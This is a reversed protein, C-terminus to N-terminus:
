KVDIPKSSCKVVINTILYTSDANQVSTLKIYGMAGLNWNTCATITSTGSLALALTRTAVSEYSTGDVSTIFSFTVAGASSANAGKAQVQVAVNDYKTTTFASSDGADTSAAPVGNTALTLTTVTYQQAFAISATAFLAVGFLILRKMTLLNKRQQNPHPTPFV